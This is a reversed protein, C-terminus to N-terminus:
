LSVLRLEIFEGYSVEAISRTEEASIKLFPLSYTWERRVAKM